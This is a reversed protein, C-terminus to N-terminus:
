SISQQLIKYYKLNMTNNKPRNRWKLAMALLYQNM